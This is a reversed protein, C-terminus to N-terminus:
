LVMPLMYYYYKRVVLLTTCSGSVAWGVCAVSVNLYWGMAKGYTLYKKKTTLLLALPMQTTDSGQVATCLQANKQLQRM